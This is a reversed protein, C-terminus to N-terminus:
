EFGISGEVEDLLDAIPRRGDLVATAYPQMIQQYLQRRETLYALSPVDDKREYAVEEPIDILYVHEPNPFFATFRRIISHTQATDLNLMLKLKIAVDYIYRASTIKQGRLLPLRVKILVLLAYDAMLFRAYLGKLFRKSKGINKKNTNKKKDKTIKIKQRRSKGALKRISGLIYTYYAGGDFYYYENQRVQKQRTNFARALTTKGAGDTGVFCIFKPLKAKSVVNKKQFSNVSM